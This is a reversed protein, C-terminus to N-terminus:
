DISRCLDNSGNAEGLRSDPDTGPFFAVVFQLMLFSAFRDSCIM